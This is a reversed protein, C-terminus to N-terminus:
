KEWNSDDIHPAPYYPRWAVFWVSASVKEILIGRGMIEYGPNDLASSLQNDSEPQIGKIEGTKAPNGVIQVLAGPKEFSLSSVIWMMETRYFVPSKLKYESVNM